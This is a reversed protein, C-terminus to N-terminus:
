KMKTLFFKAIKLDSPFTLKLNREHHEVINIEKKLDFLLHLNTAARFYNKNKYFKEYAEAVLDFNFCEPTQLSFLAKSPFVNTIKSDQAAAVSEVVKIGAIATGYKKATAVTEKIVNSEIFPRVSDHFLVYDIGKNKLFKIANYSSQSRSDGGEIYEIKVTPIKKLLAAM